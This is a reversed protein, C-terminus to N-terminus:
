PEYQLFIISLGPVIGRKGSCIRQASIINVVYTSRQRGARPLTENQGDGEYGDVCDAHM